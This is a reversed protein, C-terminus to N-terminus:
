PRTKRKEDGKGSEVSLLVFIHDFFCDDFKGSFFIEGILFGFLYHIFNHLSLGGRNLHRGIKGSEGEFALGNIFYRSGGGSHTGM